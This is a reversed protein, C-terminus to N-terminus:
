EDAEKASTPKILNEYAEVDFEDERVFWRYRDEGTDDEMGPPPALKERGIFHDGGGLVSRVKNWDDYFYEALLPIIKSRMVGDIEQLNRCKMLWAHGILHDRDSLYELRNNIASLVATLDVGGVTGLTSLDPSMDKFDFRRRLATDLLAISRDATNMTGVIYLNAPLSYAEGSYPLTVYVENEKGERKDEELLTVLEGLVKSINARNIEDIILVYPRSDHRALDSIRKLIGDVVKLRFGGSTASSDSLSQESLDSDCASTHLEASSIDPRLGEVFEEYSFSQHFTVFEIRKEDDRLERFRNQLEDENKGDANGDCIEVCIKTTSYTKGTGPPGYLITNLAYDMSANGGLSFRELLNFTEHYAKRFANGIEGEGSGFGISGAGTVSRESKNLWLVHIRYKESWGSIYENQYVVGIGRGASGYRVLVIDGRNPSEVKYLVKNSSESGTYVANSTSFDEWYDGGDNYVNTSIQFCNKSNLQLKKKSTLYCFLNIEFLDCGQFLKRSTELFRHYSEWDVNTTTNLTTRSQCKECSGCQWQTNNKATNKYYQGIQNSATLRNFNEEELIGYWIRRLEDVLPKNSICAHSHEQQFHNWSADFFSNLASNIGGRGISQSLQRAHKAEESFLELLQHSINFDEIKKFISKSSCDFKQNRLRLTAKDYPLFDHANILFLTQSLKAISVRSIKLADNFDNPSVASLGKVADRFLQWLLKPNGAGDKHFLTNVLPPKPFIYADENEFQPLRTQIEFERAVSEYVRSRQELSGNHGALTYIFSFPDIKDDGYNTLSPYSGDSKWKVKKVKEILYRERNNAIKQSLEKFWPVWDYIEKM